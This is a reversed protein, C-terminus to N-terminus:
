SRGVLNEWMRSQSEHVGLSTGRALPTRELAQDIQHEYLGHGAEHMTAFLSELGDDYYRTTIRIDNIGGGSAFPHVTPDLRWSSEDFGFAKAVELEFVKQPEVPFM